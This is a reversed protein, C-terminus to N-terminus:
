AWGAGLDTFGGTPWGAPYPLEWDHKLATVRGFREYLGVHMSGMNLSAVEPRLQLAPQQGEM